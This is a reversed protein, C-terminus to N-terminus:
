WRGNQLHPMHLRSINMIEATSISESNSDLSNRQHRLAPFCPFQQPSPKRHLSSIALWREPLWCTGQHSKLLCLGGGLGQCLELSLVTEPCASPATMRPGTSLLARKISDSDQFELILLRTKMICQAPCTIYGTRQKWLQEGPTSM